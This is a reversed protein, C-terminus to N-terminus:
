HKALAWGAPVHCEACVPGLEGAHSDDDVHCSVCEQPTGQFAGDQHCQVCLALAHEGELTHGVLATDWVMTIPDALDHCVSCQASRYAIHDSPAPWNQGEPNHCVMCDEIAVVDHPISAGVMVDSVASESWGVPTHCTECAGDLHALPRLHCGACERKIEVAGFHCSDCTVEAHKGELSVPHAFNADLSLTPWNQGHCASNACFSSDDTGFRVDGHCDACSEDMQFRHNSMFRSELHSPPEQLASIAIEPPDDGLGVTMPISHCLNCELRIASGEATLHQGDHCRFCGDSNEHGTNDSFSQWTVGPEEFVLRTQLERALRVAQEIETPYAATVEPYETDYRARLSDAAAIAEEQTAYTATLLALMEQKAYPLGTSLRGDALAEDILEEPSPFPHGIRNHCDACDMTRKEAQTIEEPSLPNTADNYEITSGDPLTTRVWRIDQKSEDTAIYEVPNSVHWHIGYGQEADETGAGTRLLLYTLKGTNDADPEFHEIERAMDDHFAPPYHCKECSESAPRMTESVLPREYNDFLIAPLHKFHGTKLVAGEVMSVRGMHCETCKIRAHYSDQNAVPEEPHVDHCTNACFAVSNSYEWAEAGIIGLCILCVFAAGGVLLMRLFKWRATATKDAKIAISGRAM